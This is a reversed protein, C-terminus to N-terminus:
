IIMLPLPQYVSVDVQREAERVNSATKGSRLKCLIDYFTSLVLRSGLVSSARTAMREFKTSKITTNLEVGGFNAVVVIFTLSRLIM